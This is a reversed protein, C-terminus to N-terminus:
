PRVTAASWHAGRDGSRLLGGDRTRAIVTRGDAFLFKEIAYTGTDIWTTGRDETTLLKDETGVLVGWAETTFLADRIRENRALGRVPRPTEWKPQRVNIWHISQGSDAVWGWGSSLIGGRLRDAKQLKPVPGDVETLEDEDGFGLVSDVGKSWEGTLAFGARMDIPGLAVMFCCAADQEEVFRHWQQGEDLTNFHIGSISVAEGEIEPETEEPRGDETLGSVTLGTSPLVFMLKAIAEQKKDGTNVVTWSLGADKSQLTVGCDGSAWAHTKDLFAISLLNLPCQLPPLDKLPPLPTWTAGLDASTLIRGGGVGFLIGITPQAVVDHLTPGTPAAQLVRPGEGGLAPQPQGSICGVVAAIGLLRARATIEFMTM